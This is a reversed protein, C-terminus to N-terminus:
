TLSLRLLTSLPDQNRFIPQFWNSAGPLPVASVQLLSDIIISAESKRVATLLAPFSLPASATFHAGRNARKMHMRYALAYEYIRYLILYSIDIISRRCYYDFYRLFSPTPHRLSRSDDLISHLYIYLSSGWTFSQKSWWVVLVKRRRRPYELKLKINCGDFMRRSCFLWIKKCNWAVLDMCIRM